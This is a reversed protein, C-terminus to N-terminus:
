VTVMVGQTQRSSSAESLLSIFTQLAYVQTQSWQPLGASGLSSRVATSCTATTTLVPEGPVQVACLMLKKEKLKYAYCM